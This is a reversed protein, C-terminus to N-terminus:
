SRTSESIFPLIGRTISVARTRPCLFVVIKATRHKITNRVKNWPFIPPAATTRARACLPSASVMVVRQVKVTGGLISPCDPPSLKISSGILLYNM